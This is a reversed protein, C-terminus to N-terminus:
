FGGDLFELYGDGWYDGNTEAYLGCCLGIGRGTVDSNPELFSRDSLHLGEEFVGGPQFNQFLESSLGNEALYDGQTFGANSHQSRVLNVALEDGLNLDARDNM